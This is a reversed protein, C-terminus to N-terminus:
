NRVEKQKKFFSQPLYFCTTYLKTKIYNSLGGSAMCFFLCSVKSLQDLSINLKLKKSFPRPITKWGCKSFSKKFFINYEILQGSKMTQNGKSRSINTLIHMAKAKTFLNHCWFNQSSGYRELWAMKMWSWFTM